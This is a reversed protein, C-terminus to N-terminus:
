ETKATTIKLRYGYVHNILSVPDSRGAPGDYQIEAVIQEGDALVRREGEDVLRWGAPLAWAAPPWYALMIDGLVQSAPPLGKALPLQETDILRGDYQVRFLRVGWLSFGVLTLSRGDAELVVSLSQSRGEVEATLLQQRRLEGDRTPAPLPISLEPNLQLRPRDLTGCAILGVAILALMVRPRNM